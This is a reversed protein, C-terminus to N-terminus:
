GSAVECEFRGLYSRMTQGSHLLAHILFSAQKAVINFYSVREWVELLTEEEQVELRHMGNATRIRIIM